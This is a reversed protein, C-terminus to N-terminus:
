HLDPKGYFASNVQKTVLLEGGQPMAISKLQNGGQAPNLPSAPNVSDHRVVIVPGRQSQRWHGILRAINREAQPNSTRGWFASDDFGVQVDIVILAEVISETTEPM